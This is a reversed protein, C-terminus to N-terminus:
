SLRFFCESEVNRDRECDNDCLSSEEVELVFVEDEFGGDIFPLSAFDSVGTEGAGVEAPAKGTGMGALGGGRGNFRRDVDAIAGFALVEFGGLAVVGAVSLFFTVMTM